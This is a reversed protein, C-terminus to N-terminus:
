SEEGGRTRRVGLVTVLTTLVIGLGAIAWLITEYPPGQPGPGLALYYWDSVAKQGSREGSSGNWVAVAVDMDADRPVATRNPSTSELSRSFVVHWRGDSYSADTRVRSEDFRTTSGPGGALLEESTGDAAWYWVNVRNTSGGMTIPPRVSANAPLQVAVADAFARTESTSTDRTADPWSLRLYLRDDTRAAAVSVREVTAQDGNPVAAGSSALPVRAPPAQSWEEGDVSDLSDGDTAYHVPIEFAPRADTVAPAVAATALVVLALAGAVALDERNV